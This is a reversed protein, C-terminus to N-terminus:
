VGCALRLCCSFLKLPQNWGSLSLDKFALRATSFAHAVLAVAGGALLAYRLPGRRSAERGALVYVAWTAPYTVPWAIERSVWGGLIQVVLTEILAWRMIARVPQRM